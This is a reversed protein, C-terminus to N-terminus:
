MSKVVPPLKDLNVIKKGYEGKLFARRLDIRGKGNELNVMARFPIRVSTTTRGQARARARKFAEWDAGVLEGGVLLYRGVGKKKLLALRLLDNVLAQGSLPLKKTELVHLWGEGNARKIVFDIQKPRGIGGVFFGPHTVERKIRHKQKHSLLEVIPVSLSAETLLGALGTLSKYTVWAVVARTLQSFQKSHTPEASM